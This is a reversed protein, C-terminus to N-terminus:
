KRDYRSKKTHFNTYARNGIELTYYTFVHRYEVRVQSKLAPMNEHLVIVVCKTKGREYGKMLRYANMMGHLGQKRFEPVCHSDLMLCENASLLGNVINGPTELEGFSLWCSYILRGDMVIGYAAYDGKEFRRKITDLRERTFVRADGSLFDSYSLQKIERNNRKRLFIESQKQYDIDNVLYYYREFKVGLFRFGAKILRKIFGAFGYQNYTDKIKNM